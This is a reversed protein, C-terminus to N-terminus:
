FLFSAPSTIRLPLPLIRVELSSKGQAEHLSATLDALGYLRCVRLVKQSTKPDQIQLMTELFAIASPQGYRPCCAWYAFALEWTTAGSALAAAYELLFFEVQLHNSWCKNLKMQGQLVLILHRSVIFTMGCEVFFGM